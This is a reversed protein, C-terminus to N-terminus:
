QRYGTIGLESATGSRESVYSGAWNTERVTTTKGVVKQVMALHGWTASTKIIAAAGVSATTTNIIFRKGGILKGKKDLVEFFTLDNSPLTRRCRCYKVCNSVNTSTGCADNYIRTSAPVRANSAIGQPSVGAGEEHQTTLLESVQNESAPTPENQNCAALAVMIGVLLSTSTSIQKKIVKSNILIQFYLLHFM